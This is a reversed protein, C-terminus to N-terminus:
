MKSLLDGIAPERIACKRSPLARDLSQYTLFRSISLMIKIDKMYYIIPEEFSFQVFKWNSDLIQFWIWSFNVHVFLVAISIRIHGRYIHNSIHIPCPRKYNKRFFDSFCIYLIFKTKFFVRVKILLREM